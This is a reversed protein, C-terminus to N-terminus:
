NEFQEFSVPAEITYDGSEIKESLVKTVYDVASAVEVSLGEQLYEPIDITVGWISWELDDFQKLRCLQEIVTALDMQHLSPAYARRIGKKRFAVLKGPPEGAVADVFIFKKSVHLLDWLELPDTELNYLFVEPRDSYKERLRNVVINGAGDDGALTNGVGIIGLACAGPIRDSNM